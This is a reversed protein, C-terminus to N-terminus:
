WDLGLVNQLHHLVCLTRLMARAEDRLRTDPDTLYRSTVVTDNFHNLSTRTVLQWQAGNHATRKSLDPAARYGAFGLPGNKSSPQADKAGAPPFARLLKAASESWGEPPTRIMLDDPVGDPYHRIVAACTISQIKSEVADAAGPTSTDVRLSGIRHPAAALALVQGDETADIVISGRVEGASTRLGTLRDSSGLTSEIRTSRLVTVAAEELMESLVREVIVVNPTLSANRYHGVNVPRELEDHYIALTREVIEGWIGHDNLTEDYLFTIDFASVGAATAQGGIMHTPEVVAVSLGRRAAAVAAAVGSLGGGAIIVDVSRAEVPPVISWRARQDPPVPTRRPPVHGDPFERFRPPTWAADSRLDSIYPRLRCSISM